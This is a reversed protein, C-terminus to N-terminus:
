LKNNLGPAENHPHEKLREYGRMTPCWNEYGKSIEDSKSVECIAAGM